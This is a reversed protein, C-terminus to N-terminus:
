FAQATDSDALNYRNRVMEPEAGDAYRVPLNYRAALTLTTRLTQPPLNPDVVVVEATLFLAQAGWIDDDTLLTGGTEHKVEAVDGARLEVLQRCTSRCNFFRQVFTTNIGATHLQKLILDGADDRGLRSVLHVHWGSKAYRLVERGIGAGLRTKEQPSNPQNDKLIELALPGICLCSRQM